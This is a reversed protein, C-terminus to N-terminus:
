EALVVDIPTSLVLNGWAVRLTVHKINDKPYSLTITLKEAATEAKTVNPMVAEFEVPTREIQFADLREKRAKGPDIFVLSWESGEESRHLGLYYFGIPVKKGGISLPLNTDLTTWYNSGMRWVKGRTMADFKAPDNYEKKWVPRGYDIALQGAAANTQGNWYLVRASARDDPTGGEAVIRPRPQQGGANLSFLVMAGALLSHIKM